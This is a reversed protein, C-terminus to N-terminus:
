QFLSIPLTDGFGAVLWEVLVASFQWAGGSATVCHLVLFFFREDRKRKEEKKRIGMQIVVIATAITEIAIAM